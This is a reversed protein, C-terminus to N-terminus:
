RGPLNAFLVRELESRIADVKIRESIDSMFGYTLLHRATDVDIGRSRLYFLVDADLQGITAGHGCKVDDANIELQPNTNVLAEDSLLLNRNTQKADTKQADKRVIIRGNFVGRSRGSLIGKYLERSTGHPKAHDILTHHDVHQEGGVAYLGNLALDCGEGDLVANIDNRVLGGGLSISLTALAASRDLHFQLSAIHFATRSERQLKYHDLNASEGVVVETVANTFYAPGDVGGYSEIIRAQSGAEMIILNRLHSVAPSEGPVSLFLLEIPVAVASGKPLYVFAGESLFAANLAAFPNEQYRSYRALHPEVLGRHAELAEGLNGVIAGGPLSELSSHKESYHGNIFVLRLAGGVRFRDLAEADEVRPAPAFSAGLLPTVSTFRWEEDDTDPFGRESFRQMAEQRIPHVWSSRVVPSKEFQAFQELYNGIRDTVEAM